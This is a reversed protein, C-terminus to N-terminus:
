LFSQQLNPCEKIPLVGLVRCHRCMVRIASASVISAQSIARTTRPHDEVTLDYRLSFYLWGLDDQDVASCRVHGSFNSGLSSLEPVFNFKWWEKNNELSVELLRQTHISHASIGINRCFGNKKTTMTLNNRDCFIKQYYRLNIKPYVRDAHNLHCEKRWSITWARKIMSPFIGCGGLFSPITLNWTWRYTFSAPM